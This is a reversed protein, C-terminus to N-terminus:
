RPALGDATPWAPRGATLRVYLIAFGLTAIPMSAVLGVCCLCVGALFVILALVSYLLVDGRRGEASRWAASFAEAPGLNQDVVHFPAFCLGLFMPVFGLTCCTVVEIVIGVVVVALMPGFHTAGSWVDAFSTPQGRATALAIKALSVAFFSDVLITLLFAVLRMSLGLESHAVHSLRWALPLGALPTRFLLFVFNAGVLVGVNGKFAEFAARLVAVPDTPGPVGGPSVQDIPASSASAPPAYPNENV